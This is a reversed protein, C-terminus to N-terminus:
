AASSLAERRMRRVRGVCVMRVPTTRNLITGTTRWRTGDKIRLLSFVCKGALPARSGRVPRVAELEYIERNITVISGPTYVSSEM